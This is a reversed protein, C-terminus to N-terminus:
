VSRGHVSRIARAIQQKVFHRCAVGPRQHAHLIKVFEVAPQQRAIRHHRWPHSVNGHANRQRRGCSLPRDVFGLGRRLFGIKGARGSSRRVREQRARAGVVLLRFQWRCFVIGFFWLPPFSSLAPCERRRTIRAALIPEASSHYSKKRYPVAAANTNPSRKKGFLSGNVPVSSANRVNPTPKTTRGSPPTTNPMMPSRKPRLGTSTAVSNIIPM